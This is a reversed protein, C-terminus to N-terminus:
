RHKRDMALNHVPSRSGPGRVVQFDRRVARARENWALFLAPPDDLLCANCGASPRDSQASREDLDAAARVAARGGRERLRLRQLGKCRRPSRGSSTRGRWADPRQDHRDARRRITGRSNSRRVGRIPVVEFQMDVGINYLQKQVELAIRELLSFDTPCCVRSACGHRHVTRRRGAVLTFGPATWFRRRLERILAHVAPGVRRLGLTEALTSRHRARGPRSARESILAERDIAVNLARRVAPSRFPPARSNFAILFQYSRTSRSSESHRRESHVRGRGSARRHGHRSRRPAPQDMGNPAHRISQIVIREIEPAGLYYDDFRELVIEAPM